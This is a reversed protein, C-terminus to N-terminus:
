LILWLSTSSSISFLRFLTDTSIFSRMFLMFEQRKYVDKNTQMDRLLDDAHVTDPVLYAERLLERIQGPEDGARNLLYDRANMIGVIDNISDRICM